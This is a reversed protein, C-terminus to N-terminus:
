SAAEEVAEEKKKPKKTKRQPKKAPGRAARAAILPVADALTVEEPNLDKPLTANVKGHKVYPGYRGNLVEVKGGLEPHVLTEFSQM